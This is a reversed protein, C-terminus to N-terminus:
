DDYSEFVFSARGNPFDRAMDVEFRERVLRALEERTQDSVEAWGESTVGSATTIEFRVNM